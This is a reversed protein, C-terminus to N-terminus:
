SPSTLKDPASRKESVMKTFESVVEKDWWGKTTEAWLLEMAEEHPLSKRYSRTTTLADYIDVVTLIRALLPIDDGALKDPYGSGDMREHHHRIIPIAGRISKLKECIHAGASPHNKIVSREETTLPGAKNLINDPVGIKGLRVLVAPYGNFHPTTFLARPQAALRAEKALLHEVRVALIAGKPARPGLAELDSRRLPREWAFSKGQVSWAATGRSADEETEPLAKVIRRVDGWSAM